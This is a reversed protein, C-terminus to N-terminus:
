AGLVVRVAVEQGAPLIPILSGAVRKGDVYLEKVGRSAGAPDRALADFRARVAAVPSPPEASM